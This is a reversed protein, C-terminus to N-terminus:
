ILVETLKKFNYNTKRIIGGLGGFGLLNDVFGSIFFHDLRQEEIVYLINEAYEETM